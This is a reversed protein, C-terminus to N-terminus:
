PKEGTPPGLEARVRAMLADSAADMFGRLDGQRYARRAAEKAQRAAHWQNDVLAVHWGKVSDHVAAWQKHVMSKPKHKERKTALVEAAERDM